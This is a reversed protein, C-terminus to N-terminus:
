LLERVRNISKLYVLTGLVFFFFACMFAVGILLADPVICYSLIAHFPEVIYTFPNCMTANYLMENSDCLYFFVPSIWIIMRSVTVMIQRIDGVLVTISSFLLTTGFSFIFLAIMMIPIYLLAIVDYNIDGWLATYILLLAIPILFTIFNSITDALAVAWAPNPLKRIIASNMRFSTGSLAQRCMTVVFLGSCIYTWYDRDSYSGKVQVFIFNIAIILLLPSIFNWLMGFYSNNYKGLLDKRIVAYITSRNEKLKLYIYKLPHFIGDVTIKGCKKAVYALYIFMAVTITSIVIIAYMNSLGMPTIQFEAPDVSM